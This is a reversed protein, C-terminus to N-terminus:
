GLLAAHIERWGEHSDTVALQGLLAAKCPPCIGHLAQALMRPLVPGWDGGSNEARRCWACQRLRAEPQDRVPILAKYPGATLTLRSVAQPSPGPPDDERRSTARSYRPDDARCASCVAMGHILPLVGLRRDRDTLNKGCFVCRITRGLSTASSANM